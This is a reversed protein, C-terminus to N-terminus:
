REAVAIGGAVHKVVSTLDLDTGGLKVNDLYGGADDCQTQLNSRGGPRGLATVERASPM